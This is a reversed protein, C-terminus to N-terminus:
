CIGIVSTPFMDDTVCAVGLFRQATAAAPTTMCSASPATYAHLTKTLGSRFRNSQLWVCTVDTKVMLM